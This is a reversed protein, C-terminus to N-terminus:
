SGPVIIKVPTSETRQGDFEFSGHIVLQRSPSSSPQCPLWFAYCPGLSHEILHRSTESAPFTWSAVPPPESKGNSPESARFRFAGSPAPMPGKTNTSMLFAQAVVGPVRSGDSMQLVNARCVLVLERPTATHHVTEGRSGTARVGACGAAAACAALGLWILTRGSKRCGMSAQLALSAFNAPEKAQADPKMEREM